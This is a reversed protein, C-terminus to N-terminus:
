CLYPQEFDVKLNNIVKEVGSTKYAIKEAEERQYVSHVLGELEVTSGRVIVDIYDADIAWNRQFARIIKDKEVKQQADKQLRIANTVGRVGPLDKVLHRATERQYNWHLIGELTVWGDEVIIIISDKPLILSEQIMRAADAAIASDSIPERDGVYVVIEDAVARVGTVSKAAHEAELKKAYSDVIGTLTVIGEKVIVGIEASHLLPEYKLAEQVDKQLKENTKM